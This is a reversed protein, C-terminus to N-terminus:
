ESHGGQNPNTQQTLTAIDQDIIAAIEEGLIVVFDRTPQRADKPIETRRLVRSKALRMGDAKASTVQKVTYAEIYAYLEFRYKNSNSSPAFALKALRDVEQQQEFTLEGQEETPQIDSV